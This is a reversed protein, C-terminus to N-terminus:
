FSGGITVGTYPGFVPLLKMAKLGLAEEITPARRWPKLVVTTIVAAVTATGAASYAIIAGTSLTDGSDVIDRVAQCSPQVDNADRCPAAPASRAIQADFEAGKANSAVALGVGVGFSVVAIGGLVAPAAWTGSRPAEYPVSQEKSRAPSAAVATSPAAGTVFSLNSAEGAAIVVSREDGHVKVVHSGPTVWVPRQLPAIGRLRGDVHIEDDANAVIELRGLHGALEKMLGARIATVKEEDIVSLLNVYAECHNMAEEYLGLKREVVCLNLATKPMDHLAYSRLFVVRAGAADGKKALAIGEQDLADTPDAGAAHASSAGLNFCVLLAGFIIVHSRTRRM